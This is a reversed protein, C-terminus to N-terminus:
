GRRVAVINDTVTATQGNPGAAVREPAGLFETRWQGPVLDLSALIEDPTPFHTEPDIKWAWPPRVSGHDVVLLLGGPAVARAAAQLIPDRAFEVPSQLYQASVLDFTGIPFTRALDHREWTIRDGAGASAAREAALDLATASVDVATVQWGNTALWIADSGQGCGLDLATGPALPGAINALVINPEAIGHKEQRQYHGEWFKGSVTTDIDDRIKDARDTRDTM